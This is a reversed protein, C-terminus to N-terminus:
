RGAGTGRPRSSSPRPRPGTRRSSCATVDRGPRPPRPSPAPRAPARAATGDAPPFLCPGARLRAAMPPAHAPRGPRTLVGASATAAAVAPRRPTPPPPHDHAGGGSVDRPDAHAVADRRVEDDLPRVPGPLLHRQARRPVARHERLDRRRRQFVHVDDEVPRADGGLREAPGRRPLARRDELARGVEDLLVGLLDRADDRGLAALRELVRADLGLAAGAREAPRALLGLARGAVEDLHVGVGAALAAEAPRDALRAAHDGGDRREVEREVQHAVLHRRRQGAAVGHHELRGGVSGERGQPQRLQQGLGAEGVARELDDDAGAAGDAVQHDGVLAGVHHAEGAARRHPPLDRAVGAHLHDRELQAVVRRGDDVVVGVEVEGHLADHGAPEGVGALDADRHLADDHVPRHVVREHLLEDREDLRELHAVREVLRGVHRRQDVLVLGLPDLAPDLLGDVLTRCQGGAAHRLVAPQPRRYEGVHRALHLDARALHEPRHEADELRPVEALGDLDAVVAVHAQLGAHEGVVQVLRHVRRSAELDAAHHDVLHGREPNVM